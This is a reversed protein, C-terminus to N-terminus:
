RDLRRALAEAAELRDYALLSYGSRVNYDLERVQWLVDRSFGPGYCCHPSLAKIREHWDEPAEITLSEGLTDAAYAPIKITTM